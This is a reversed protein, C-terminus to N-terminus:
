CKKTGAYQRIFKYLDASDCSSMAGWSECVSSAVEEFDAARNGDDSSKALCAGLMSITLPVEQKFAGYKLGTSAVSLQKGIIHVASEYDTSRFAINATALASESVSNSYGASIVSELRAAIDAKEHQLLPEFYITFSIFGALIGAAGGIILYALKQM